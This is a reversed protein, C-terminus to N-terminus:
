LLLLLPLPPLEPPPLVDAPLPVPLEPVVPVPVPLLSVPLLLAAVPLAPACPAAAESSAIARLQFVAPSHTTWLAGFRSSAPLAARGVQLPWYPAHLSLVALTVGAAYPQRTTARPALSGVRSAAPTPTFM